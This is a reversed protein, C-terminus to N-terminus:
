YMTRMSEFSSGSGSDPASFAMETGSILKPLVIHRSALSVNLQAAKDNLGRSYRMKM